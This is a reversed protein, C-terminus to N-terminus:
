PQIGISLPINEGGRGLGLQDLDSVRGPGDVSLISVNSGSEDSPDVSPLLVTGTLSGRRVWAMRDALGIDSIRDVERVRGGGNSLVAVEGPEAMTVLATAGDSSFAVRQVDELDEIEGSRRVTSGSVDFVRVQNSEESFILSNPVLLTREDPSLAINPAYNSDRWMDYEAEIQWGAGDWALVRLDDDDIPEFSTQGGALIARMDGDYLVMGGALRLPFFASADHDLAGDCSLYVTSIGGDETSSRGVIHVREADGALVIEGYGASPLVVSDVLEVSRAGDVRYSALVGEETLILAIEGSPVFVISEARGGVDVRIGDDSLQGNSRLTMTRIETLSEGVMNSFPHGLVLVRDRNVPAPAALDCVDGTDGGTDGGLGTDNGVDTGADGADTPLGGGGSGDLGWLEPDCATLGVALAAVICFRVM